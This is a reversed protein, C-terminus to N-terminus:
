LACAVDLIASFGSVPDAPCATKSVATVTHASPDFSVLTGSDAAGAYGRTGCITVSSLAHDAVPIATGPVPTVGSVDVPLLAGGVGTVATFTANYATYGCTIWLTTGSLAMGSPDLCSAGLDVATGGVVADTSTDVVVLRGTAGPVPQFTADFLDNMTVFVRTGDASALVRVTGPNVGQFAFSSLDIRKVAPKTKGWPPVISLDVVALGNPSAGAGAALAVYAKANAFDFGLPNPADGGVSLSMEDVVKKGAPDIAVFSGVAWNTVYLLGNYAGLHELDNFSGGTVSAVATATPSTVQEVAGGTNDAVYVAGGLAALSAPGAATTVPAGVAALSTDFARVQNANFCAALVDAKCGEGNAGCDVCVGLSCGQGAGCANGCAGCNRPDSQLSVCSDSCLREDASCIKQPSCATAVLAAALAPLLKKM